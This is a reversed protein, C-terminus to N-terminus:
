RELLHNLAVELTAGDRGVWEDQWRQFSRRTQVIFWGDEGDWILCRRFPTAKIEIGWSGFVQDDYRAHVIKRGSARVCSQAEDFVLQSM